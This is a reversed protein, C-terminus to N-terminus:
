HPRSTSFVIKRRRSAHLDKRLEEVEQRLAVEQASTEAALAEIARALEGWRDRRRVTEALLEPRYQGGGLATLATSLALIPRAMRGAIGFAAVALLPLVVLSGVGSVVAMTVRQRVQEMGATLAMREMFVLSTVHEILEATGSASSHRLREVTEDDGATVATALDNLLAEQEAQVQEMRVILATQEPLVDFDEESQYYALAEDLWTGAEQAWGLYEEEYFDTYYGTYLAQELVSFEVEDKLHDLRLMSFYVDAIPDFVMLYSGASITIILVGLLLIIGLSGLSGLANFLRHMRQM